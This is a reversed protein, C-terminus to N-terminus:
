NAFKVALIQSIQLKIPTMHKDDEVGFNLSILKKVNINATKVTLIGNKSKPKLPARELLRHAFSVNKVTPRIDSKWM